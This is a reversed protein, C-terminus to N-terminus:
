PIIRVAEIIILEEFFLKKKALVKVTFGLERIQEM